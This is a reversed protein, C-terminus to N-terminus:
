TVFQAGQRRDCSWDLPDAAQHLTTPVVSEVDCIAEFLATVGLTKM